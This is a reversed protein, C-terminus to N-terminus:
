AAEVRFTAPTPVTWKGDAVALVRVDGNVYLCTALSPAVDSLAGIATLAQRLDHTTLLPACSMSGAKVLVVYTTDQAARM